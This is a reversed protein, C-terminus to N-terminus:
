IGSNGALRDGRLMAAQLNRMPRIWPTVRGLAEPLADAAQEADGRSRYAGLLLVYYLEGGKEVRAAALDWLSQDRVYRELNARCSLALLQVVYFDDPLETLPVTPAAEYALRRYPPVNENPEVSPPIERQTGGGSAAPAATFPTVADGAAPAEKVDTGRQLAGAEQPPSAGGSRPGPVPAAASDPRERDRASRAPAGGEGMTSAAGSASSARRPARRELLNAVSTWADLVVAVDGKPWSKSVTMELALDPRNGSAVDVATFAASVGIGRSDPGLRLAISPRVVAGPKSTAFGYGAVADLWLAPPDLERDSLLTSALGGASGSLGGAVAMHSRVPVVGDRSTGWRPNLNAELGTGDPRRDFRFSARVEADSFDAHYRGVLRRGFVEWGARSGSYRLGAGFDLGAGSQGAGGDVRGTMQWFPTTRGVVTTGEVGFRMRSVTTDSEQLLGGGTAALSVVGADGIMSVGHSRRDDLDRRAGAVLVRTDVFAREVVGKLRHRRLQGPGRGAGAGIWLRTADNYDGSAFALVSGLRMHLDASGIRADDSRYDVNVTSGSLVIGGLMGAGWERRIGLHFASLEGQLTAGLPDGAVRQHDLSLLWAWDGAETANVCASETPMTKPTGNGPSPGKTLSAPGWRGWGPTVDTAPAFADDFWHGTGVTASSVEGRHAPLCDVAGLRDNAHGGRGVGEVVGSMSNLLMRASGSMVHERIAIDGDARGIVVSVTPLHLDSYGGGTAEHRLDTVGTGVGTVVTVTQRVQWDAPEFVLEVPDVSAASGGEAGRVSIHVTDTPESDLVVTYDGRDGEILRVVQPAVTVGKTDDDIIVVSLADDSTISLYPDSATATVLLVEDEEDVDDDVPLFRFTAVGRTAGRELPLHLPPTPVYDEKGATLAHLKLEVSMDTSAPANLAGHVSVVQGPYGHGEPVRGDELRLTLTRDDDGIAVQVDPATVGDYDGGHVTHAIAASDDRGDEDHRASVSVSRPQRWNVPTFTMATPTVSVEDSPIARVTVEGTPESGLALSYDASMGERLPLSTPDVAVGRTDDDRIRVFGGTVSLGPSSGEFRVDEDSEDVDDDLVDLWFTAATSEQGPAITLTLHSSRARFDVEVEAAGAGVWVEVETATDRPADLTATVTVAVSGVEEEVVSPSATLLIGRTEDDDVITVIAPEVTAGAALGVVYFRRMPSM